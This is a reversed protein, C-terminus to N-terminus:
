TDKEFTRDSKLTLDSSPIRGYFTLTINDLTSDNVPPPEQEGKRKQRTSKGMHVPINFVIVYDINGTKTEDRIVKCTAYKDMYKVYPDDESLELKWKKMKTNHYDDDTPSYSLTTGDSSITLIAQKAEATYITFRRGSPNTSAMVNTVNYQNLDNEITKIIEARNIQDKVDYIENTGEYRVDVLIKVLFIM